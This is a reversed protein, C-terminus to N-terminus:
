HTQNNVYTRLKHIMATYPIDAGGYADFAQRLEGELFRGLEATWDERCDPGFQNTCYREFIGKFVRFSRGSELSFVEPKPSDRPRVTVNRSDATGHSRTHTNSDEDSGESSSDQNGLSLQDLGDSNNPGAGTNRRHDGSTTRHEASSNATSANDTKQQLLTKFSNFELLLQKMILSQAEMTAEMDEMRRQMMRYNKSERSEPGTSSRENLPGCGGTAGEDSSSM